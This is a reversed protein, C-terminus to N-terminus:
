QIIKEYRWFVRDVKANAHQMYFPIPGVWPIIAKVFGMEKMDGLCKKLLVAGIGKGRASADTGMPGFWGTGKNNAEHASFSAINGEREAIFLTIPNNQFASSVEGHWAVFNKEVWDFVKQRDKEEARRVTIKEKLLNIEDADTDFKNISLDAVLNSTDGFKKFGLREFFCVAETYFPDIGPMFYNPFSEYVRVVKVQQQKMKQEINEYLAKAFGKRRQNSDVCLLKIYGVKGTDRTRIVAQLFAIPSNNIESLGVLSLENKFDPDGLTKERLLFDPMIDRHMNQRCLKAVPKILDENFTKIIM